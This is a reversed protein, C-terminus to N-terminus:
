RNNKLLNIIDDKVSETDLRLMKMLEERSGHPIFEEPLGKMLLNVKLDYKNLTDLVRSGFGGIVCNDEMTVLYKYKGACAKILELDLPKIFRVSVVGADISNEAL